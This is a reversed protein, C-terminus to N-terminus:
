RKHMHTPYYLVLMYLSHAISHMFPKAELSVYPGDMTTTAPLSLFDIGKEVVMDMVEGSNYM